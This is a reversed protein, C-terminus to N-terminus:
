VLKNESLDDVICKLFNELYFPYTEAETKGHAFLLKSGVYIDGRDLVYEHLNNNRDVINLVINGFYKRELSFDVVTAGFPAISREIQERLDKKKM